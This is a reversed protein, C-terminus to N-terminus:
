DNEDKKPDEKFCNHSVGTAHAITHALDTRKVQSEPTKDKEDIPILPM